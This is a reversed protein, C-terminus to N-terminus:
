VIRNRASFLYIIGVIGWMFILGVTWMTKEVKTIRTSQRIEIIATVIYTVACIFAIFFFLDSFQYHMIKQVAGIFSVFYGFLLSFLLINKRSM